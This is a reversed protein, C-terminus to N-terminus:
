IIEDYYGKSWEQFTEFVSEIDGNEKDGNKYEIENDCAVGETLKVPRFTSLVLKADLWSSLEKANSITASLGLVVLNKNHNRMQTIAIELVPGRDSDLEHIEDVILCGVEDLWQAKHRLLSACNKVLAPLLVV